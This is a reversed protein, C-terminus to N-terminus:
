KLLLEYKSTIQNIQERMKIENEIVLDELKKKWEEITSNQDFQLQQIKQQLSLIEAEAEKKYRDFDDQLESIM